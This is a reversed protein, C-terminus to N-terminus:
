QTPVWVWSGTTLVKSSTNIPLTLTHAQVTTSDFLEQCHEALDNPDVIESYTTIMVAIAKDSLLQQVEMLLLSFQKQLSFQEGKAGHGYAPPDLCIIDYQKNRRVERKLFTLVDEKIWRISRPDLGNLAQNQKARGIAPASSDVHTVFAGATAAAISAAGTYAFLNLIRIPEDFNSKNETITKQLLQWQVLQEPFLGLHKSTGLGVSFQWSGLAVQWTEPLTTKSQWSGDQVTTGRYTADAQNWEPLDRKPWSATQDPRIIIYPGWKELRQFNGADLLEYTQMVM